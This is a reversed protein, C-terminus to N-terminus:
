SLKDVVVDKGKRQLALSFFIGFGWIVQQLDLQAVAEEM